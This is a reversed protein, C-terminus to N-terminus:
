RITKKYYKELRSKAMLFFKEDNEIGIFRRGLNHASVLTTGSGCCCDLVLNGPNTFVKIFYDMLEIPKQTPHGGKIRPNSVKIVSRAHRYGTNDKKNDTQKEYGEGKFNIKRIIKYPKGELKQENYTPLSSYFILISEHVRLPQHRINLQGSGVTKEWIIEYKFNKINSMVLSSSFPQIATLAVVGNKKIVRNFCQWLRDLPIISDWKNQSVGYPLDTLILDVSGEDLRPMVELCDGFILEGTNFKCNNSM